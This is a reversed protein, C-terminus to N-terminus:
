TAALANNPHEPPKKSACTPFFSEDRYPMPEEKM